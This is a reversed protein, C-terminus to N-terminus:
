ACQMCILIYISADNQRLHCRLDTAKHAVRDRYLPKPFACLICPLARAPAPTSAVTSLHLVEKSCRRAPAILWRQPPPELLVSNESM